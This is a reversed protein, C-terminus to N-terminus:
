DHVWASDFRYTSTTIGAPQLSNPGRLQIWPILSGFAPADLSVEASATSVILRTSNGALDVTLRLNGTEGKPLAQSRAESERVVEAGEFVYRRLVLHAAGQADRELVVLMWQRSDEIARLQLDGAPQTAVIRALVTSGESPEGSFGLDLRLGGADFLGFRNQKLGLTNWETAPLGTASKGSTLASKEDCLSGSANGGTPLPDEFIECLGLPTALAQGSLILSLLAARAFSIM